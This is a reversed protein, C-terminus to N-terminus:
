EDEEDEGMADQLEELETQMEEFTLGYKEGFCGDYGYVTQDNENEYEYVNFPDTNSYFEQAKDSMRRMALEGNVKMRNTFKMKHVEKINYTDRKTDKNYYVPVGIELRFLICNYIHGGICLACFYFPM